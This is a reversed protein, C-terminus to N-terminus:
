KYKLNPETFLVDPGYFMFYSTHPAPIGSMVGPPCLGRPCLGRRVFGGVSLVGHRFVYSLVGPPCFGREVAIIVVSSFSNYPCNYNIIYNMLRLAQSFLKSM